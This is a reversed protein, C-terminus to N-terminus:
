ARGAVIVKKGPARHQPSPGNIGHGNVVERGVPGFEALAVAVQRSGDRGLHLPETFEVPRGHGVTRQGLRGLLQHRHRDADHLPAVVADRQVHVIRKAGSCGRLLDVLGDANRQQHATSRRRGVGGMGKSRKSCNEGHGPRRVPRVGPRVMARRSRRPRPRTRSPRRRSRVRPARHAARPTLM